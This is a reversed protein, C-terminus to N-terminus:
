NKSFSNRMKVQLEGIHSTKYGSLWVFGNKQMDGVRPNCAHVDGRLKIHARLGLSLDNYKHLWCKVLLAM